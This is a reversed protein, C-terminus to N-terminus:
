SLTLLMCGYAAVRLSLRHEKCIVQYESLMEKLTCTSPLALASLDLAVKKEVANNNLVVIWNEENLFRAFSYLNEDSYLTLIGGKQLAHSRKRIANLKQVFRFLGINWRSEEWEMCQRASENNSGGILGIEDGYYIAPIGVYSFLFVFALKLSREDGLMSYLIRACDHSGLLNYMSFNASFNTISRAQKLWLDLEKVDLKWSIKENSEPEFIVQGTLWQRVPICFGYYNMAGDLADGQLLESAEAGCEGLIYSEPNAKKVASRFESWVERHLQAADQRALTEAVDLRWGDACFPPKLYRQAVSNEGRYIEDRLKQSQYNLTPLSSFGAWSHFEQAGTKIYYAAFPSSADQWAGGAPYFGDRNFWFHCSGTHNFVGDLIIRIDAKHLAEILEVLEAEAGFHPDIKQYDQTDYKHNSPSLFIPNLWLANIGLRKLYPIKERIGRLDGGFFDLNFSGSYDAPAEGWKRAITKHGQYAYEGTRVNNAPDGDFFRDPFIQYFIRDELWGPPSFNACLKFDDKDPPIHAHLGLANLHFIKRQTLIKFRYHFQKNWVKTRVSYYTLHHLEKEKQMEITQEQGNPASRFLIKRVPNEKRIRLRFTVADGLRYQSPSVFEESDGTHITKMWQQIKM